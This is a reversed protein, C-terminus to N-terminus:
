PKPEGPQSPQLLHRETGEVGPHVPDSFFALKILVIVALKVILLVVIERRPSTEKRSM